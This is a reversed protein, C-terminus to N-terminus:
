TCQCHELRVRAAPSGNTTIWPVETSPAATTSYSHLFIGPNCLLCLEDFATAEEALTDYLLLLDVSEDKGNWGIM